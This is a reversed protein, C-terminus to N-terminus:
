WRAAYNVGLDKVMQQTQQPTLKLDRPLRAEKKEITIGMDFWKPKPDVWELNNGM